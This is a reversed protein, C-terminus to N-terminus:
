YPLESMKAAVGRDFPSYEPFCSLVTNTVFYCKVSTLRDLM